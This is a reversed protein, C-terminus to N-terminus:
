ALARLFSEIWAACEKAHSQHVFHAASPVMELRHRPFYAALHQAYSPTTLRTSKGGGIFLAPKSYSPGTKGDAGQTPAPISWAHVNKEERQLVDVNPRWAWKSQGQAPQMEAINGLVFARDSPSELHQNLAKEIDRKQVLAPDSLHLSQMAGFISSHTHTYAAPAADLSILARPALPDDQQTLAYALMAKGGQSHGCMVPRHLKHTQIFYQLDAVLHTYDHAESRGSWGHNRLDVNWVDLVLSKAAEENARKLATHMQGELLTFQRGDGLLCHAFLLPVRRANTDVAPTEEDARIRKPTPDTLGLISRRYALPVVHPPISSSSVASHVYPDAVAAAAASFHRRPTVAPTLHALVGSVRLQARQLM